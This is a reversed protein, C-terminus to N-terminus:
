IDCGYFSSSLPTLKRTKVNERFLSYRFACCGEECAIDADFQVFLYASDSRSFRYRIQRKIQRSQKAPVVDKLRPHPPGVITERTLRQGGKLLAVMGGSVVNNPRPVGILMGFFVVGDVRKSDRSIRYRVTGRADVVKLPRMGDASLFIFEASRYAEPLPASYMFEANGFMNARKALERVQDKTLNALPFAKFHSRSLRQWDIEAFEDFLIAAEGNPAAVNRNRSDKHYAPRFAVDEALASGSFLALATAVSIVIRKKM